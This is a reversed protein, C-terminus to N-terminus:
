RRRGRRLLLDGVLDSFDYQKRRHSDRFHLRGDPAKVVCYTEPPRIVVVAVAEDQYMTEAPAPENFIAHFCDVLANLGIEPYASEGLLTPISNGELGPLECLAVITERFHKNLEIAKAPPLGLTPLVYELVESLGKHDCDQPNEAACSHYAKVGRVISDAWCGAVPVEGRIVCRLAAVAAIFTCASTGRLPVKDFQTYPHQITLWLTVGPLQEAKPAAFAGPYMREFAVQVRVEDLSHRGTEKLLFM